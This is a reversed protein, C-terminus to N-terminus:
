ACACVCMGVVGGGPLCTITRRTAASSAASITVSSASSGGNRMGGPWQQTSASLGCSAGGSTTSLRANPSRHPTGKHTQKHIGLGEPPSRAAVAPHQSVVLLQHRWLGDVAARKALSM